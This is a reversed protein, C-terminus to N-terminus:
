ALNKEIVTADVLGKKYAKVQEQVDIAIETLFNYEDDGRLGL